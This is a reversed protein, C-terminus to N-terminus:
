IYIGAKGPVVPVFNRLERTLSDFLRLTVRALTGAPVGMGRNAEPQGPGGM